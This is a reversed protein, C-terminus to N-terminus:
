RKATKGMQGTAMENSEEKWEGGKIYRRSSFFIRALGQTLENWLTKTKDSLPLIDILPRLINMTNAALGIGFLYWNNKNNTKQAKFLEDLTFGVFYYLHQSLTGSDACANIWKNENGKLINWAKIPIFIGTLFCGALGFFPSLNDKLFERSNQKQSIDQSLLRKIWIPLTKLENWKIKECAPRLRWWMSNVWNSIEKYAEGFRGGIIAFVPLVVPNIKIEYNCALEGVNAAIPRKVKDFGLDDDDRKYLLYQELNRIVDLIKQGSDLLRNVFSGEKTFTKTIGLATSSVACLTSNRGKTKNAIAWNKNNQYSPNVSEITVM